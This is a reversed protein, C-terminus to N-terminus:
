CSSHWTFRRSKGVPDALRSPDPFVSEETEAEAEGMAHDGGEEEDEGAQVTVPGQAAAAAAAAFAATASEAVGARQLRLFGARLM